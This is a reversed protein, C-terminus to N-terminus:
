IDYIYSPSPTISWAVASDHSKEVQSGPDFAKPGVSPEDYYDVPQAFFGCYATGNNKRRADLKLKGTAPLDMPLSMLIANSTFRYGQTDITDYFGDSDFVNLNDLAHPNQAVDYADTYANAYVQTSFGGLISEPSSCFIEPDIIIIDLDAANGLPTSPPSEMDESEDHFLPPTSQLESYRQGGCSWVNRRGSRYGPKGFGLSSDENGLLQINSASVVWFGSFFCM